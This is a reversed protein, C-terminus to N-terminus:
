RRRAFSGSRGDWSRTSPTPRLVDDRVVRGLVLITAIGQDVAKACGPRPRPLDVLREARHEDPRLDGLGEVLETAHFERLSHDPLCADGNRRAQAEQVVTQMKRRESDIEILQAAIPDEGRRALAKDFGDPDERILKLDFM